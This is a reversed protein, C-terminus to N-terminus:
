KDYCVHNWLTQKDQQVRPLEQRNPDVRESMWHMSFRWVRSDGFHRNNFERCIYRGLHLRLQDNASHTNIGNEYYKFWRHNKMSRWFPDPKIWSFEHPEWNFLGEHTWLEVETGNHLEGQIIYSWYVNPPRPSFMSWTQDWHFTWALFKTSSPPGYEHFGINALNWMLIFVIIFFCVVNVTVLNLYKFFEKVLQVRESRVRSFHTSKPFIHGLHSHLGMLKLIKYFFFKRNLVVALPWLLPSVKCIQILAAVNSHNIGRYDQVVLWSSSTSAFTRSSKV